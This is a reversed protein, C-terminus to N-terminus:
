LAGPELRAIRVPAHDPSRSLRLVQARPPTACADWDSLVSRHLADGLDHEAPRHTHGHILHTIGHQLLCARAAQADVDFWETQAQKRAESRQRMDRAALRRQAVTQALFEDQWGQSRVQARFLMYETDSLCLADGHSLLWRQGAFSLPCPDPLLQAGCTGLFDQGVLFDRNGHMFYLAHRQAARRLSAACAQVFDDGAAADDGIWVEFLDGLIIIADAQSRELYAHWLQCTQPDDAHLHLDSVMEISRWHGPAVLGATQLGTGATGAILM